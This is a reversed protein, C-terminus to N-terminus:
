ATNFYHLLLLLTKADNITGAKLQERAQEFSLEVLEIEEGEEELGGGEEHKGSSAYNAIFLHLLETIAGASTYIAAVKQLNTVEFGTEEMVERLAAEEPQEGEDILGACTEVLYGTENGNLYTPMRFQKTLLFVEKEPDALLVSVADPRFYVENKQEHMDGKLTPKEYTISKLQFKEDSIVEEKLIKIKKM